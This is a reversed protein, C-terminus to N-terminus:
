ADSRQHKAIRTCVICSPNTGTTKPHALCTIEAPVIARWLPLWRSAITTARVFWDDPLEWVKPFNFVVPAHLRGAEDRPPSRQLDVGFDM